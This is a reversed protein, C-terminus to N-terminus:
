SCNKSFQTYLIDVGIQCSSNPSDNYKDHNPKDNKTSVFGFANAATNKPSLRVRFVTKPAPNIIAPVNTKIM